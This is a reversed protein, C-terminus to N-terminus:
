RRQGKYCRFHSEDNVVQSDSVFVLRDRKEHLLWAHPYEGRVWCAGRPPATSRGNRVRPQCPHNDKAPPLLEGMLGYDVDRSPTALLATPFLLGLLLFPVAVAAVRM